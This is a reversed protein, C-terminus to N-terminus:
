KLTPKRIESVARDRTASRRDVIAAVAVIVEAEGATALQAGHRTLLTDRLERHNYIEGNFMIVYRGKDPGSPPYELPQHSGRVDVVALRQFGMVHGAGHLLQTEDPGRHHLLRLAGEAAASGGGDAESGFVGLLGCM